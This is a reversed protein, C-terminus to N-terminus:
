KLSLSYIIVREREADSQVLCKRVVGRLCGSKVETTFNGKLFTVIGISSPLKYTFQRETVM